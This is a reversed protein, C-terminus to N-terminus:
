PKLLVELEEPTVSYRVHQQVDIDQCKGGAFKARCVVITRGIRTKLLVKDQKQKRM